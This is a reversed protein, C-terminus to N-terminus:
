IFLGHRGGVANWELRMEKGYLFKGREKELDL